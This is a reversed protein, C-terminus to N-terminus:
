FTCRSECYQRDAATGNNRPEGLCRNMCQENPLRSASAAGAPNNSPAAASGPPSSSACASLILATLVLAHRPM